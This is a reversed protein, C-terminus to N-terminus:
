IGIQRRQLFDHRPTFKLLTHFKVQVLKGGKTNDWVHKVNSKGINILKGRM